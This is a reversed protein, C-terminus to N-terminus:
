SLCSPNESGKRYLHNAGSKALLGNYDIRVKDGAKVPFPEVRIEEM